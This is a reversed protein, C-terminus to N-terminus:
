PLNFEEEKQEKPLQQIKRFLDRYNCPYSIVEDVIVDSEGVMIDYTYINRLHGCFRFSMGTVALLPAGRLEIRTEKKGIYEEGNDDSRCWKTDTDLMALAVVFTAISSKNFRTLNDVVMNKIEEIRPCEYGAFFDDLFTPDHARMIISVFIASIFRSQMYGDVAPITVRETQRSRFKEEHQMLLKPSIHTLMLPIQDKNNINGAHIHKWTILNHLPSFTILYLYENEHTVGCILGGEEDCDWRKGYTGSSFPTTNNFPYDLLWRLIGARPCDSRTNGDSLMHDYSDDSDSPTSVIISVYEQPSKSFNYFM